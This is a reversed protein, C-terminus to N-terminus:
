STHARPLSCPMKRRKRRTFLMGKAIWLKRSRQLRQIIGARPLPSTHGPFSWLASVRPLAVWRWPSATTGRMSPFAWLAPMARPETSGVEQLLKVAPINISNAVCDRLTVWGRYNSGSNRPMYGSFDTPEDLLTTTTDYGLYELTPAYVLVPKIASGPQRRMSTARNFALRTTHERGGLLGLIEGSDASLVVMACECNSGDAANGPFLSTDKATQELHTQVEPDLNTHIEYGGTLLETYGIGLAECADTLVMDTYFGYLYEQEEQEALVVAEKQAKAAEDESLFGNAAMQSLVLNRRNLAKEPHLHPAYNSPSKLIAALM